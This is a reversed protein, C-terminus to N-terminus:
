LRFSLLLRIAEPQKAIIAEEQALKARKKSEQVQFGRRVLIVPKHHFTGTRLQFATPNPSAIRLHTTLHSRRRRASSSLM